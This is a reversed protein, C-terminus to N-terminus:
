VKRRAAGKVPFSDLICVTDGHDRCVDSAHIRHFSQKLVDSSQKLVRANSEQMETDECVARVHASLM